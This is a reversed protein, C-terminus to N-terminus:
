RGVVKITALYQVVKELEGPLKKDAGHIILSDVRALNCRAGEVIEPTVIAGAEVLAKVVALVDMHDSAVAFELATERDNSTAKQNIWALFADPSM